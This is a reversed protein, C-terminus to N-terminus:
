GRTSVEINKCRQENITLGMFVAECKVLLDTYPMNLCSCFITSEFLSTLPLSLISFDVKYM